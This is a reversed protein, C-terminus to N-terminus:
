LRTIQSILNTFPLRMKGISEVVILLSLGPAKVKTGLNAAAAGCCGGMSLGSCVSAGGGAGVIESLMPPVGAGGDAGFGAGTRAVTTWVGGGDCGTGLGAGLGAGVLTVLASAAEADFVKEVSFDLVSVCAM